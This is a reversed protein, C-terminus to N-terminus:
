GEREGERGEERRREEPDVNQEWCYRYHQLLHENGDDHRAGSPAGGGRYGGLLLLLL